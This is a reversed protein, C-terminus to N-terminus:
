WPLNMVVTVLLLVLAVGGAIWVYVPVRGDNPADASFSARTAAISPTPEPPRWDPAPGPQFAAGTRELEDDADEPEDPEPAEDLQPDADLDPAPEEVLDSDDADEPPADESAAEVLADARADVPTPHLETELESADDELDEAAPLQTDGHGSARRRMEAREEDVETALDAKLDDLELVAGVSDLVERVALALERCSQFRDDEELACARQFMAILSDPQDVLNVIPVPLNVQRAAESVTRAASCHRGTLLFHLMLGLAYIDSRKEIRDVGLLHEPSAYRPTAVVAARGGITVPDAILAVTGFDTVKPVWTAPDRYDGEIMVNEPKLDGHVIEKNHLYEIGQVIALFVQMAAVLPLGDGHERGIVKDLTQGGSVLDMVLAIRGDSEVLERASLVHPHKLQTGVLGEENFRKRWSIDEHLAQHLVKLAVTSGYVEDRAAYVEGMGGGAILGQITYNGFTTGTTLRSM